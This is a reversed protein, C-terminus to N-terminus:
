GEDLLGKIKEFPDIGAEARWAVEVEAGRTVLTQITGELQNLAARIEAADGTVKFQYDRKM